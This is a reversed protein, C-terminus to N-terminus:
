FIALKFYNLIKNGGGIYTDGTKAHHQIGQMTGVYTGSYSGVYSCAYSSVYSCVYSGVYSCAYSRGVDGTKAHHQINPTM